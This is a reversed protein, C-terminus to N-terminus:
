LAKQKKYDFLSLQAGTYTVGIFDLVKALGLGGSEFPKMCYDYLQPHTLQMQQFRNNGQELHCGFMCFVCGTRKYGMDYIKSYTINHTKIYKWIDQEKWFGLPTSIPRKSEFANCNHKLYSTIRLQSEEAMTGIFPKQEARKEYMKFPKKKMENCCMHSINFPAGILYKYKELCYKRGYKKVYDSSPNFKNIRSQYGAKYQSVAESVEKSIVPYGYKEIVETFPLKPKLWIVNEIIKVFARIEPYELGTDVFVAVVDPYLSRVINLLVTSDKGGSFSVYVNGNWHEYWEKIRLKTKEIKVELPLSQMQKLQWMKMM